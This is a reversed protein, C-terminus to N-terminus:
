EGPPEPAVYVPFEITFTSSKGPESEAWIRGGHETIIGQCISLGLGTGTGPERTTFLPTFLHKMNENTIGPGDDTFSIRIKDASQKAGIDLTGRNHAHIMFYEANVIINFFVQQIHSPNGMVPPLDPQVRVNVIINNVKQEYARLAVVKQLEAAIYVPEKEQRQRRTFALLNKVTYSTRQAEENIAAIDQRIDEPLDRKLLLGALNIIGTLPNNLEHALGSTLQGISVLRDQIILQNEMKRRETIDRAVGVAEFPVGKEDCIYRSHVELPVIQGNHHLVDMTVTTQLRGNAMASMMENRLKALSEKAIIDEPNIFLADVETYGLVSRVAPSVFTFRQKAVDLKFIIDASNETVLRYQEEQKRRETVDHLIVLRGAPHERDLYMFTIEMEFFRKEGKVELMLEERLAGSATLHQFLVSVPLLEDLKKGIISKDRGSITFAMPNAEILTNRIDFIFVADRLQHVIFERAFPVTTFLHFRMLGIAVAAGSIAFMVPTLDKRPIPILQFVYIINWLWPLCAAIILSIAQKAYLPTGTFLRRVLIISGIAILLYNHVLAAWFLPGYTKATIVFQDTAALHANSWMLHHWSNTWILVTIILPFVCIYILRKGRMFKLSNTYNGSFVFWAPPVAMSGLYGINNFFMQSSLTSSRSELYFGLTWVFIAAMLAIMSPAAPFHRKRWVLILVAPAIVMSLIMSVQYFYFYM